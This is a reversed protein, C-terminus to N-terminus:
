LMTYFGQISDYDFLSIWLCNGRMDSVSLLHKQELEIVMM